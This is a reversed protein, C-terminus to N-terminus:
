EDGGLEQSYYTNNVVYRVKRADPNRAGDRWLPVPFNAGGAVVLADGTVGAYPGAVGLADPLAPLEEWQLVSDQAAASLPIGALFVGAVVAAAMVAPKTAM